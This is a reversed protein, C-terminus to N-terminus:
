LAVTALSPMVRLRTRVEKWSGRDVAVDVCTTYFDLLPIDKVGSVKFKGNKNLGKKGGVESNAAKHAAIVMELNQQSPNAGLYPLGDIYTLGDASLFVALATWVWCVRRPWVQGVCSDGQQGGLAHQVTETLKM